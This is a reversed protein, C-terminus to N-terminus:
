RSLYEQIRQLTDLSQRLESVGARRSAQTAGYQFSWQVAANPYNPIVNSKCYWVPISCPELESYIMTVSEPDVGLAKAARQAWVEAHVSGASPAIIYGEQGCKMYKWVSVNRGPSIAQEIRFEFAKRVVDQSLNYPIVGSSPLPAISTVRGLGPTDISAISAIAQEAKYLKYAQFAPVGVGAVLGVGTRATTGWGGPVQNYVRGVVDYRPDVEVWAGSIADAITYGGAIWGPPGGGLVMALGGLAQLTRGGQRGWMDVEEQDRFNGTTWAGAFWPNDRLWEESGRESEPTGHCSM